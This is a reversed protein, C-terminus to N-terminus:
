DRICRVSNGMEKNFPAWYYANPVSQIYTISGGWSEIDNSHWMYAGLTLNGFVGNSGRNGAPLLNFGLGNTAPLGIHASWNSNGAEKLTAGATTAGGAFEILTQWEEDTAVHWGQPALKGTNLAYWNYLAGYDTDKMSFDNNYWCYAPMSLSNWISGDAVLPIPTGDNLKTVKLNEVMWVQTGITVTHYVNGDIDTVTSDNPAVVKFGFSAYGFEQPTSSEGLALVEPMLHTSGNEIISFAIPLPDEVHASMPSGEIPSAYIVVNASDAIQFETLLYDGVVLQLSETTYGAGFSFLELKKSNFILEGNPKTISLVVVSPLKADYVRGGSSRGAQEFNLKLQGYRPLVHTPSECSLLSFVACLTLFQDRFRM